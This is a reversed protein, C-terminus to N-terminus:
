VRGLATVIRQRSALLAPVLASVLNLILCFGFAMLFVDWTMLSALDLTTEGSIATFAVLAGVSMNGVLSVGVYALILGIAGGILTMILNEFLVQTVIDKHTAGFAKRIGIENSRRRMRSHTMGSLNIGPVLLTIVIFAIQTIEKSTRKAEFDAFNNIGISLIIDVESTSCPQNHFSLRLNDLNKNYQEVRKNFDSIVTAKSAEDKAVICCQYMGLMDNSYEYVIDSTTYPYWVQAYSRSAYLSVDRVVGCVMYEKLDINFTEGVVDTDSFISRALSECIVAKRVGGRFDAETFPAGYIFDYKFANFLEHDSQIVNAKQGKSVGRLSVYQTFMTSYATVVEAGELERLQTDIFKESVFSNSQGDNPLWELTAGTVFLSRDRNVEPGFPDNKIKDMIMLAMVLAIALATGVISIISMFPNSKMVQVVQRMYIKIM